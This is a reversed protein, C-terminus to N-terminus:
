ETPTTPDTPPLSEGTTPTPALTSVDAPRDSVRPTPDIASVEWRGDRATMTLAYQVSIQATRTESVTASVLLHMQEGNEPTEAAATLDQDGLADELDLATYPAPALPTIASGPTIYRAVDGSGTLLAALFDHAAVVPPDDLNARYRYDLQDATAAAPAPVPAPLTQAIVAGDAFHIPVQFYRRVPVTSGKDDPRSVTAAVTVSWLDESTEEVASTSVTDVTWAQQPLSVSAVSTVFTSLRDEQGEPTTLWTSIFDEAFATVASREAVDVDGAVSSVAPAAAPTMVGTFALFLAVPGCAVVTWLGIAMVRTLVASGGTWQLEELISQNDPPSEDDSAEDDSAEGADDYVPDPDPDTVPDAQRRKFLTPTKM